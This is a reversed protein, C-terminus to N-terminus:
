HGNSPRTGLQSRFSVVFNGFSVLESQTQSQMVRFAPLLTLFDANIAKEGEEDDASQIEESGQSDGNSAKEGEEEGSQDGNSAKEEEEGGSQNEEGGENRAKEVEQEGSQTEEDGEHEGM